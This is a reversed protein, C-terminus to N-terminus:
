FSSFAQWIKIVCGTGIWLLCRYYFAVSLFLSLPCTRPTALGNRSLVPISPLSFLLFIFHLHCFSFLFLLCTLPTFCYPMDSISLLKRKHSWTKHLACGQSLSVGGWAWSSVGSLFLPLPAREVTFKHSTMTDKYIVSFPRKTLIHKETLSWKLWADMVSGRFEHLM